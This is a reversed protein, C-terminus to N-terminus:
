TVPAEQAKHRRIFSLIVETEKDEYNLFGSFEVKLASVTHGAYNMKTTFKLNSLCKFVLVTDQYTKQFFVLEGKKNCGAFIAEADHDYSNSGIKYLILYSSGFKLETKETLNELAMEKSHSLTKLIKHIFSCM